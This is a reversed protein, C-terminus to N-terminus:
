KGKVIDLNLPLASHMIRRPSAIKVKEEWIRVAAYVHELYREWRRMRRRSSLEYFVITAKVRLM